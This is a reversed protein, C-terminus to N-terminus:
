QQEPQNHNLQRWEEAIRPSCFFLNANTIASALRLNDAPCRNPWLRKVKEDAVSWANTALAAVSSVFNSGDAVATGAEWSMTASADNGTGIGQSMWRFSDWVGLTRTGYGAFFNGLKSVRMPIGNLTAVAGMGNVDSIQNYMWVTPQSVSDVRGVYDVAGDDSFWSLGFWPTQRTTVSVTANLNTM